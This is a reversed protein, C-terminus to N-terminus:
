LDTLVPVLVARACRAAHPSAARRVVWPDASDEKRSPTIVGAALHRRYTTHGFAGERPGDHLGGGRHTTRGGAGKRAWECCVYLGPQTHDGDDGGNEM